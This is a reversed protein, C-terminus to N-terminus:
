KKKEGVATWHVEYNVYNFQEMSLKFGDARQEIAKVSNGLPSTSDLTLNPPRVYPIPYFVETPSSGTVGVKGMQKFELDSQGCGLLALSGCALVFLLSRM